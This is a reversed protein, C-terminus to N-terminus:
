RRRDLPLIFKGCRHPIQHRSAFIKVPQLVEI